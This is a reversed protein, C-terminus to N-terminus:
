ESLLAAIPKYTERHIGSLVGHTKLANQHAKTGYGKHLEFRYAPHQEALAIMHQDRWVKALVSAAAIWLSVTDGRPQRHVIFHDEYPCTKWASKGDILLVDPSQDQTALMTECANFARAYALNLAAALGLTNIEAPTAHGIGYGLATNQIIEYAAERQRPTMQKSDKVGKLPALLSEDPPLCVGAAAVPGAWAGYGAEDMGIIVTKGDAIYTREYDM